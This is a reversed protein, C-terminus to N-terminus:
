TVSALSCRLNRDEAGTIDEPAVDCKSGDSCYLRQRNSNVSWLGDFVRCLPLLKLLVMMSSTM